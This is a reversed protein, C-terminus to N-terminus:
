WTFDDNILCRLIKDLARKEIDQQIREKKPVFAYYSIHKDMNQINRLKSYTDINEIGSHEKMYHFTRGVTGRHIKFTGTRYKWLEHQILIAYKVGVVLEKADVEVFM